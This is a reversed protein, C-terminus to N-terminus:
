PVWSHPGWPGWGLLLCPKWVEVRWPGPASRQPSPGRGARAEEGRAQGIWRWGTVGNVKASPGHGPRRPVPSLVRSLTLAGTHGGQAGGASGGAALLSLSSFPRGAPPLEPESGRPRPRAAPATWGRAGRAEPLGAQIGPSGSPSSSGRAGGLAGHRALGQRAAAQEIRIQQPSTQRLSM